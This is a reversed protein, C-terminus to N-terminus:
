RWKDYTWRTTWWYHKAYIKDPWQYKYWNYHEPLFYHQPRKKINYDKSNLVKQMLRNWVTKAASTFVKVKGIEKILDYALKSWQVCAYLPAVSNINKPLVEAWEKHSTDVAYNEYWDEFLETINNLCLSDAGHMAWWYKYLIEYRMCDAIGARQKKSLFIDIAKQNIWETNYLDDNGRLKYEWEPHKKIRSNIWKMPAPSDGIWICHLKKPIM